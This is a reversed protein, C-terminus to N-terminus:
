RAPVETRLLRDPVRCIRKMRIEGDFRPYTWVLEDGERRRTVITYPLGFPHFHLVEDVWEMSVWTNVCFPVEIDRSGRALTGDTRFDHIVGGATVITRDGCQEIREVHGPLPGDQAFWLGRLDVVGAALPERCDALIPMPFREYGCGPTFAKPIDDADPGKGDLVALDCHDLEGADGEFIRPDTTDPPRPWLYFVVLFTTLFLGLGSAIVRLLVKM